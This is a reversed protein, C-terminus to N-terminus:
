HQLCGGGFLLLLIFFFVESKAKSLHLSHDSVPVRFAEGPYVHGGAYNHCQSNKDPSAEAAARASCALLVVLAASYFLQKKASTCPSLEMAHGPFCTRRTVIVQVLSAEKGKAGRRRYGAEARM